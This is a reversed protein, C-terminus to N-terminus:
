HSLAIVAIGSSGPEFKQMDPPECSSQPIGRGYEEEIKTGPSEGRLVVGAWRVRVGSKFFESIGHNRGRPGIM